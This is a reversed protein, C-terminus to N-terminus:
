WQHPKLRTLVRKSGYVNFYRLGVISIEPNQKMFRNTIQDMAYKSYGYPNEPSELALLKPLPCTEM